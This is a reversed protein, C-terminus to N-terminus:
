NVIVKDRGRCAPCGVGVATRTVTVSGIAPDLDSLDIEDTVGEGVDYWGINEALTPANCRPCVTMQPATHTSM